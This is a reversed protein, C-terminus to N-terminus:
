ESYLQSQSLLALKLGNIWHIYVTLDTSLLILSQPEVILIIDKVKTAILNFLSYSEWGENV